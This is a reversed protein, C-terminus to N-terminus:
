IHINYIDCKQHQIPEITLSCIYALIDSTILIIIKSVFSDQLLICRKERRIIVSSFLIFIIKYKVNFHHYYM